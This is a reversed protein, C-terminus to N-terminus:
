LGEVFRWIEVEGYVECMNQQKFCIWVLPVYHLLISHYTINRFVMFSTLRLAGKERFTPRSHWRKSTEAVSWTKEHNQRKSDSRQTQVLLILCKSYFPRQTLTGTPNPRMIKRNLHRCAAFVALVIGHVDLVEWMEKYWYMMKYWQIDEIEESVKQCRWCGQSHGRPVIFPGLFGAVQMISPKNCLHVDQSIALEASFQQRKEKASRDREVQLTAESARCFSSQSSYLIFNDVWGQRCVKLCREFIM